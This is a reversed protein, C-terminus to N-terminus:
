YVHLFKAYFIAIRFATLGEPRPPPRADAANASRSSTGCRSHRAAKCRGTRRERRFTFKNKRSGKTSTNTIVTVDAAFEPSEPASQTGAAPNGGLIGCYLCAVAICTGPDFPSLPEFRSSIPRAATMGFPLGAALGLFNSLMGERLVIRQKDNRRDKVDIGGGL